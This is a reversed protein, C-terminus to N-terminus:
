RRRSWRGPAAAALRRLVVPEASPSRCDMQDIAVGFKSGGGALAQMVVVGLPQFPNSM